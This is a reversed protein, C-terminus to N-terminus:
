WTAKRRAHEQYDRWFRVGLVGVVVLLVLFPACLWLKANGKVRSFQPSGALYDIDVTGTQSFSQGSPISDTESRLSSTPVIRGFQDEVLIRTMAEDNFEYRIEGMSSQVSVIKAQAHKAAVLYRLETFCAYASILLLAVAGMILRIKIQTGWPAEREWPLSRM